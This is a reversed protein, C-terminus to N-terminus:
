RPGSAQSMERVNDAREVEIRREFPDVSIFKPQGQVDFTIENAGTRLRQKGAYLPADGTSLPHRAYAAVNIMEDLPADRAVDVQGGPHLTKAARITATVRYRGGGLPRTTASEVRLDYFTVEAIWEDILAHNRPDSEAHLAALLDMTNAPRSGRGHERLLRRLARDLADEGMLERLADMVVAGKSYYIFDADDVRLLPTEPVSLGTRSLVYNEREFRLLPPLSAEGRISELVRMESYKALTEVLMSAGEAQAPALQHGWWQHSIEHAVRRTVLDVDGGRRFDTLFGRGEPYVILGPLAYAGFQWHGPLEAIRLHRLPYPGFRAGFVDLSRTATALMRNVNADHGPHHYVEVWVGRHLTRTM